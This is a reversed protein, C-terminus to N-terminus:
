DDDQGLRDPRLCKRKQGGEVVGVALVWNRGQQLSRVPIEVSCGFDAPGVVVARDEFDGMRTRM